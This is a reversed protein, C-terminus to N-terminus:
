KRLEKDLSLDLELTGDDSLGDERTGRTPDEPQPHDREPTEGDPVQDDGTEEEPATLAQTLSRLLDALLEQEGALEDVEAAEADNLEGQQVRLEDLQATRENLSIQLSKLVKLQALQPIIDAPPQADAPQEDDSKQEDPPEKSSDEGDDKANLIELIEALRHEAAQEQNQTEVDTLRADLRTSARQMQKAAGRLALAFVEAAKLTEALEDTEEGLGNQVEVLDRLSRLLGRSWNGRRAVEQDLRQTEAVVAQQRDILGQLRGGLRELEEFALQEEAQRRAEAVERQTQQLDDLSQREEEAAGEGSENQLQEAARRMGAAVRNLSQQPKRIRLRRLRRELNEAERAIEEQQKALQQLQEGATPNDPSQQIAEVKRLLEDQQKKLTELENEIQQIRKVLAETDSTPRNSLVDNLEQLEELVQQQSRAAQGINNQALQEAAERMRGGIAHRDLHEVGDRLTQDDDPTPAEDADAEATKELRKRFEDLRNAQLQQHERLKALDAREQESLENLSRTMTQRGLEAAAQNVAQQEAIIENLSRSLDRRNRWTSLRRRIESLSDVVNNQSKAAQSLSEQAADAPRGNSRSLQVDKVADTLEREIDPLQTDRLNIVEDALLNLRRESEPDDLRNHEIEAQLSRVQDLIGQEPALLRSTVSRQDLEARKLLDVDTPRLEGVRELQVQLEGVHSRAREQVKVAEDLEDLLVAQRSELEAAKRSATVITITRSVSRGLHDPVLDCEDIAEAHFVILSGPQLSLPALDWEHKLELELPRETGNFLPLMTTTQDNVAGETTAASVRYQIRVERLGLDDRAFVSLPLVATPTLQVDTAPDELRVEPVLDAIGRIEYRPAERNEFGERDLMAFWYSYSGVDEIVFSTTFEKGTASLEIPRPARDKVRLAAAKLSKNAIGAIQVETGVMGQIHGVGHPLQETPLRTYAPPIMTIQLDEIQPPTIVQLTHFPMDHDDGGVARFQLAGKAVRLQIQFVEVPQESGDRLNVRRLPEVSIPGDGLRYEVTSTEPLEGRGNRVFIEFAEGKAVQLRQSPDSVPRLDADVLQLETQRPWATSSFPFVLRHIAIAAEVQNFGAILATFLCVLVATATVRMVGRPEVVDDINMTRVHELTASAVERQMEVSGVRPDFGHTMFEVSSTLRDRLGPFRREITSALDLDSLSVLLPSILTKWAVWGSGVLISLGFILRIGGDDLHIWWDLLATSVTAGLLVAVVWSLGYLWLVQRVRRRIRQLQQQLQNDM